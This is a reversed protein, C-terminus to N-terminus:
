LWQLSQYDSSVVSRLNSIRETDNYGLIQALTRVRVKTEDDTNFSDILTQLYILNSAFTLVYEEIYKQDKPNIHIFQLGFRCKCINDLNQSLVERRVM